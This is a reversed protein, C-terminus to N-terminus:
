KLVFRSQSQTTYPRKGVFNGPPNYSCVWSQSKDACVKIACGVETTDEWVVQTYHGCKKGPRCSNKNYNYWEEEDTWSKVVDKITISQVSAEGTSWSVPSAWYLNEGYPPEGSRHVMKCSGTSGLRNAWDQSYSALKGSWKLPTLGHKNRVVNHAKLMGSFRNKHSLEGKQHFKDFNQTTSKNTSSCAVVLTSSLIVISFLQINM